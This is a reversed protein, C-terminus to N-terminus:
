WLVYQLDINHDGLFKSNYSCTCKCAVIRHGVNSLDQTCDGRFVLPVRTLSSGGYLSAGAISVGYGNYQKIDIQMSCDTM